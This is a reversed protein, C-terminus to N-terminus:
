CVHRSNYQCNLFHYGDHSSQLQCQVVHSAIQPTHRPNGWLSSYRTDHHQWPLLLLEGYMVHLYSPLILDVDVGLWRNVSM